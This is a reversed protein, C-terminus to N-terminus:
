KFREILWSPVYDAWKDYRVFGASSLIKDYLTDRRNDSALFGISVPYAHLETALRKFWRMMDLSGPQLVSGSINNSFDKESRSPVLGAWDFEIYVSIIEPFQDYVSATVYVKRNNIIFEFSTQDDERNSSTRFPLDNLKKLLDNYSGGTSTTTVELLSYFDKFRM